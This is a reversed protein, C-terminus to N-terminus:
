VSTPDNSLCIVSRKFHPTNAHTVLVITRDCDTCPWSIVDGVRHVPNVQTVKLSPYVYERVYLLANVDDKHIEIHM